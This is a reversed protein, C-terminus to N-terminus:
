AAVASGGAEVGARMRVGECGIYNPASEPELRPRPRLFVPQGGKAVEGHVGSRPSRAPGGRWFSPEFAFM